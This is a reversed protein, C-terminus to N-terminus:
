NILDRMTGVISDMAKALAVAETSCAVFAFEDNLLEAAFNLDGVLTGVPMGKDALKRATPRIVDSWVEPTMPKGLHGMDAAIDSPGFFVGSVGEVAAIEDACAIAELTEIQVIISMEEEVREFYDPIRGFQNARNSGAVGRIGNPPYRCASVAAAAEEASQIMPFVLGPAGIDLLRKVLVSDNWQPRVLGPTPHPAFGQLQGLVSNLDNPAHEMDIVAFDFGASAVIESAFPSALSVWIGFQKRGEALGRTFSNEPFNM